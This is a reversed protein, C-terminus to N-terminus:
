PQACWGPLNLADVAHKVQEVLARAGDPDPDAPKPVAKAASYTVVGGQEVADVYYWRNNITRSSSGSSVPKLSELKIAERGDACLFVVREYGSYVAIILTTGTASAHVLRGQARPYRGWLYSWGSNLLVDPGAPDISVELPRGADMPGVLAQFDAEGDIVHILLPAEAFVTGGRQPTSIQVTPAACGVAAAACLLLLLGAIARSAPLRKM